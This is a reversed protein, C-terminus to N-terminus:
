KSDEPLRELVYALRRLVAAMGDRRPTVIVLQRGREIARLSREVLAEQWPQLGGQAHFDSPEPRRPM